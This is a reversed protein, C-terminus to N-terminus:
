TSSAALPGRSCGGGGQRLRGRRDWCPRTPKTEQKFHHFRLAVRVPGVGVPVLCSMPKSDVVLLWSAAVVPRRPLCRTVVVGAPVFLRSTRDVAAFPRFLRM